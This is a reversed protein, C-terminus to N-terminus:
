GHEFLKDVVRRKLTQGELLEMAIFPQCHHEGIEHVICINPHNLGAAVRAERKMREM